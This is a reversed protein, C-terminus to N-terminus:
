RPALCHIRSGKATSTPPYAGFILPLSMSEVAPVKTGHRIRLPQLGETYNALEGHEACGLSANCM